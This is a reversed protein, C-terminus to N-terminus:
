WSTAGHVPQLRNDPVDVKLIALDSDRDAGVLTGDAMSGDAFVVTIQDANEIVHNNTVIHGAKDWVFGSGEGQVPTNSQPLDPFNPFGPIAPFTPSNLTNSSAQEVVQIHVVSPSVQNYIGELTGALASQAVVNNAAPVDPQTLVVANGAPMAVDVPQALGGCAVLALLAVTILGASIFTHKQKM